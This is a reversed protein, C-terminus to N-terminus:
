GIPCVLRCNNCNTVEFGRSNTGYTNLRCNKQIVKSEGIAGAPCESICRNCGKICLESAYEDSNLELNTLVVGITLRNGYDKNILLSSKGISGIGAQVAAHKVSILGKGEMENENWYDYPSDCPIPVAVCKYDSELLKSAKFAIDDVKIISKKNYHSYVYQPSVSLLGKPLAIGFVIVSKCNYYIDKPSFGEVANGFREIAAVGCVDAGLTAFLEKIREKM